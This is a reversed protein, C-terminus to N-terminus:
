IQLTLQQNEYGRKYACIIDKMDFLINRDSCQQSFISWLHKTRPSVCRYSSGYRKQYKEVLREDPFQQILKGYYWDRQVDRLTMGFAPYIFRAKAEHAKEVIELINEDTDEIFPLVPMLLIGTFLGVESLQRIAEFRRSSVPARPEIKKCLGDEAATVTVKLLVPAYQAIDKLIDIDRLILDSKTAIAVGFGFAHILELAHRTLQLSEEMPNYPDSMAGMGVVGTRTKRRLDDRIIRLADKKARVKDFDQIRYCASRSDCYICGHCCGRYINMNYDIGFWQGASPVNTVIHKAPIYEM